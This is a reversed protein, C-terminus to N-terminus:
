PILSGGTATSGTRPVSMLWDDGPIHPFGQFNLFNSFKARCTEARKDCGAVLRVRDGASIPQGFSQWLRIERLGEGDEDGKIAGSLGAAQGSLVQLFGHTFWGEDYGVIPLKLSPGNVVSAVQVEVNFSPDTVDLGCNSDGLVASCTKIFSRGQPQNLADTLSRLEAEFSGNQRKIEGLTGYFKVQRSSVNDWQVQWNTVEAGDFRGALIDTESIVDSQLLGLVETNNVSLGTSTALAKASMGSDATFNIGEFELDRDHDTFGFTLGDKRSVAWCQCVHTHGTRLHAHLDSVSM